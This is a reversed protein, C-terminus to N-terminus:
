QTENIKGKWVVFLPPHLEALKAIGRVIQGVQGFISSFIFTKGFRKHLRHLVQFQAEATQNNMMDIVFGRLFLKETFNALALDTLTSNLYLRYNRTVPSFLHDIGPYVYYRSRATINFFRLLQSKVSPFIVAPPDPTDIGFLYSSTSTFIQNQMLIKLV